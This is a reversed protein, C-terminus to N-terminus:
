SGNQAVTALFHHDLQWVCLEDDACIKKLACLKRYEADVIQVDVNADEHNCVSMIWDSISM